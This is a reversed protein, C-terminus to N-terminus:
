GTKPKEGAEADPKDEAKLEEKFGRLGRALGRMMDPIRNAGFFVMLVLAIILIEWLGLRPM